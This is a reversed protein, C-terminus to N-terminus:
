ATLGWNKYLSDALAVKESFNVVKLRAADQRFQNKMETIKEETYYEDFFDILLYRCSLRELCLADYVRNYLTVNTEKYKEIEAFAKEYLGDWNKLMAYNWHTENPDTHCNGDQGVEYYTYSRWTKYEDLIQLMIPAADKYCANCYEEILVFVDYDVNWQLRASIYAKIHGFATSNSNDYQSQNYLWIVNNEKALRTNTKISNFNDYPVMYNDFTEMYTWLLLKKAIGAWATLNKYTNSNVDSDFPQYYDANIPALIVCIDDRLLLDNSILEYKNTKSNFIVPCRRNRS